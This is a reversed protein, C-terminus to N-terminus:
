SGRLKNILKDRSSSSKTATGNKHLHEMSNGTVYPREDAHQAGGGRSRDRYGGPLVGAKLKARRENIARYSSADSTRQHDMHQARSNCGRCAAVHGAPNWFREEWTAGLEHEPKFGHGHIHDTMNAKGGCYHCTSNRCLFDKSYKRWRTSNYLKARAEGEPSRNYSKAMVLAAQWSGKPHTPDGGYARLYPM